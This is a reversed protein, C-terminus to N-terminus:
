GRILNVAARAVVSRRDLGATITSQVKERGGSPSVVAKESRFGVFRGTGRGLFGSSTKNKVENM